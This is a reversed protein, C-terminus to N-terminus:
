VVWAGRWDARPLRVLGGGQGAAAIFLAYAGACVGVAEGNWILDGRQAFSPEKRPFLSDLTTELDRAGNRRIVKAAGIASDYQGRYPAGPDEGTMVLVAGAVFLGCDHEGYRYEVARMSALYDSLAREWNPLRTM